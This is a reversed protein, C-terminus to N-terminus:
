AHLVLLKESFYSTAAIVLLMLCLQLASSAMKKCCNHSSPRSLGDNDDLRRGDENLPATLVCALSPSWCARHGDDDITLQTKSSCTLARQARTSWLHRGCSCKQYRGDHIFDSVFECTTTTTM